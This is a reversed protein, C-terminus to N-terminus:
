FSCLVENPTRIDWSFQSRQRRSESWGSSLHSRLAMCERLCLDDDCVFLPLFASVNDSDTKVPVCLVAILSYVLAAYLEFRLRQHKNSALCANLAYTPRFLFSLWTIQVVSYLLTQQWLERSDYLLRMADLKTLNDDFTLWCTLCLTLRSNSNSSHAVIMTVVFYCVCFVCPCLCLCVRVRGLRVIRRQSAVAHWCSGSSRKLEGTWNWKWCLYRCLKEEVRLASNM